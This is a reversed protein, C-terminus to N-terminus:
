PHVDKDQENLKICGADSRVTFLNASSGNIIAPQAIHDRSSHAPHDYQNPSDFAVHSPVKQYKSLIM